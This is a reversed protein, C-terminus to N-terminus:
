QIRAQLGDHEVDGRFVLSRNAAVALQAEFGVATIMLPNPRERSPAPYANTVRRVRFNIRQYEDYHPGQPFLGGQNAIREYVLDFLPSYVNALYRNCIFTQLWRKNASTVSIYRDGM